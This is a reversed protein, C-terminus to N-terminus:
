LNEFKKLKGFEEIKFGLNKFIKISQICFNFQENELDIVIPILLLQTEKKESDLNKKMKELVLREHAAHQDVIVMGNSSISLIYNKKFQYIAYGLPYDM